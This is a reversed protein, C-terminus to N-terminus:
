VVLLVTITGIHQHNMTGIDYSRSDSTNRGTSDDDYQELAAAVQGIVSLESEAQRIMWDRCSPEDAPAGQRELREARRRVADVRRMLEPDIIDDFQKQADILTATMCRLETLRRAITADYTFSQCRALLTTYGDVIEMWRAHMKRTALEVNQDVTLDEVLRFDDEGDNDSHYQVPSPDRGRPESSWAAVPSLHRSTATFRRTPSRARHSLTTNEVAAVNPTKRRNLLTTTEQIRDDGLSRRGAPSRYYRNEAPKADSHPTQFKKSDDSLNWTDPETSRPDFVSVKRRSPEVWRDCIEDNHEAQMTDSDETWTLDRKPLRPPVTVSDHMGDGYEPLAKASDQTWTHDTQLTRLQGTIGDYFEDNYAELVAANDAPTRIAHTDPTTSRSRSRSLSANRRSKRQRPSFSKAPINDVDIAVHINDAAAASIPWDELAVSSAGNNNATPGTDDAPLVLQSNAVDLRQRLDCVMDTLMVSERNDTRRAASTGSANLQKSRLSSQTKPRAGFEDTRPLLDRPSETASDNDVVDFSKSRRRTRVGDASTASARLQEDQRSGSGTATPLCRPSSTEADSLNRTRTPIAWSMNADQLRRRSTLGYRKSMATISSSKTVNPSQLRSSSTSKDVLPIDPLLSTTATATGAPYDPQSTEMLKSVTAPMTRTPQRKTKSLRTKPSVLPRPSKTRGFADRQQVTSTARHLPLSQFTELNANTEQQRTEAQLEATDAKQRTDVRLSAQQATASPSRPSSKRSRLPSGAFAQVILDAPSPEPPKNRPLPEVRRPPSAHDKLSENKQTSFPSSQSKTPMANDPTIKRRTKKTASRPTPMPSVSLSSQRSRRPSSAASNSATPSSSTGPLKLRPIRSPVADRHAAAEFEKVTFFSRQLNYAPLKDHTGTRPTSSATGGDTSHTKSTIRPSQGARALSVPIKSARLSLLSRTEALKNSAPSPQKQDIGSSQQPRNRSSSGLSTSPRPSRRQAQTNTKRLMQEDVVDRESVRLINHDQAFFGRWRRIAPV